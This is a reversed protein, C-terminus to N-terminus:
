HQLYPNLARNLADGLLNVTLCAVLIGAGPFVAMWWAIGIFSQARSLQYGWSPMSPDGLGLFSLSSELIISAAVQLSGNVIAPPIANPLIESFMITAGGAGALLAAQVFEAERFKLFQARTLRATEPWYLLSIVWIVNWINAGFIAAAVLAVFFRPMIQFVEMIKTLIDDCIGGYYGSLSGLFVGIITASLATVLGVLLSTRAGYLFMSFVDRGLDDTGFFHEISPPKLTELGLSFPDYPSLLPGFIAICAMIMLLGFGIFGNVSTLLGRCFGYVSLAGKVLRRQILMM